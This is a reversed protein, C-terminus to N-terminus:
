TRRNLQYFSEATGGFVQEQESASLGEINRALADVVREYSGALLCVPWDSGFMVRAPGFVRLVHDIYPTLDAPQWRDHHSETILGSLKCFVQPFESVDALPTAWDDWGAAAIAPKAAHDVVLRLEPQRHALEAVLPLHRPRILLDYALGRRAVAALGRLVDERLVWDNDAEDHLNHRIGVLRRGHEAILEDLTREITPDTLDVWGVVGAIWPQEAALQLFWRTEDLSPITQVLVSREINQQALQPALLDPGFSQDLVTGPEIWPYAYRGVQWFHHHADIRLTQSM